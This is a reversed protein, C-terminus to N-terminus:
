RKKFPIKGNFHKYLLNRFEKIPGFSYQYRSAYTSTKNFDQTTPIKKLKLTLKIARQFLKQKRVQETTTFGRSLLNNKIKYRMYVGHHIKLKELDKLYPMRNHKSCFKVLRKLISKRKAEKRIKKSNTKHFIYKYGLISKLKQRIRERTVNYKKGLQPLSFGKKFDRLINSNTKKRRKQLITLGLSGGRYRSRWRKKHKLYYASQYKKRSKM